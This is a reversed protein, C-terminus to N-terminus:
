HAEKFLLDKRLNRVGNARGALITQHVLQLFLGCLGRLGEFLKQTFTTIGERSGTTKQWNEGAKRMHLCSRSVFRATEYIFNEQCITGDSLFFTFFVGSGM